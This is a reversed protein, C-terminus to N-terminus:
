LTAGGAFGFLTLGWTAAAFACSLGLVVGVAKRVIGGSETFAFGIGLLVIAIVGAARAVPGTLSDVVQQIPGEWPMGTGSAYAPAAIALATLTLAGLKSVNINKRM